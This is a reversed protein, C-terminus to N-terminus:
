SELCPSKDAHDLIALCPMAGPVRGRISPFGPFQPPCRLISPTELSIMQRNGGHRLTGIDVWWPASATCDKGFPFSVAEPQYAGWLPMLPYGRWDIYVLSCGWVSPDRAPTDPYYPGLGSHMHPFLHNNGPYSPLQTSDPIDPAKDRSRRLLLMHNLRRPGDVENPRFYESVSMVINSLEDLSKSQKRSATSTSPAFYCRLLM